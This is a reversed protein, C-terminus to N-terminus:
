GGAKATRGRTLMRPWREPGRERPFQGGWEKRGEEEEVRVWSRMPCSCRWARKTPFCRPIQRVSNGPWTSNIQLKVRKKRSEDGRRSKTRMPVSNSSRYETEWGKGREDSPGKRQEFAEEEEEVEDVSSRTGGTWLPKTKSQM